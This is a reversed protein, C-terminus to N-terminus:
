LYNYTNYILSWDSTYLIISNLLSNARPKKGELYFRENRASPVISWSVSFDGEIFRRGVYIADKENFCGIRMRM